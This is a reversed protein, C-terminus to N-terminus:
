WSAKIMGPIQGSAALDRLAIRSLRVRRYFGRPRGSLECRNRIRVACGNKPLALKIVAQFRDESSTEKNMIIKKLEKRKEAYKEVKKIRTKNKEIANKKAM